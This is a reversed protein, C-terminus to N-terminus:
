ARLQGELRYIKALLCRTPPDAGMLGLLQLGLMRRFLRDRWRCPMYGLLDGAIWVCIDLPSHLLTFGM